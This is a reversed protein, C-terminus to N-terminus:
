SPADEMGKIEAQEIVQKDLFYTFDLYSEPVESLIWNCPTKCIKSFEFSMRELFEARLVDLCVLSQQEMTVALSDWGIFMLSLDQHVHLVLKSAM